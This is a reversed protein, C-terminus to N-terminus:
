PLSGKPDPRRFVVGEDVHRPRFRGSRYRVLRLRKTDPSPMAVLQIAKIKTLMAEVGPLQLLEDLKELLAILDSAVVPHHRSPAHTV